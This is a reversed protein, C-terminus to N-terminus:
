SLWGILGGALAGSGVLIGFIILARNKFSYYDKKLLKVEGVLGKDESGEVGFLCDGIENVRKYTKEIMEKQTPMKVGNGHIGSRRRQTIM